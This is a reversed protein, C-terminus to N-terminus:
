NEQGVAQRPVQLLHYQIQHHHKWQNWGPNETLRREQGRFTSGSVKGITSVTVSSSGTGTGDELETEATPTVGLVMGLETEATPAVGLVMGLEKGAM